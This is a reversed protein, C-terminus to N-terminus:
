FGIRKSTKRKKAKIEIGEKLVEIVEERTAGRQAMREIAHEIISLNM